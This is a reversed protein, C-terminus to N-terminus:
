EDFILLEMVNEPMNASKEWEKIREDTVTDMAGSKRVGQWYEEVTKRYCVGRTSYCNEIFEEFSSALKNPQRFSGDHSLLWISNERHLAICIYDGFANSGISFYGKKLNEEYFEHEVLLHELDFRTGDRLSDLRVIEPYKRGTNIEASFLSCGNYKVLYKKYSTPLSISLKKEFEEIETLSIPYAEKTDVFLINGKNDKVQSLLIDIYKDLEKEDEIVKKKREELLETMKKFSGNYMGKMHSILFKHRHVSISMLRNHLAFQRKGTFSSKQWFEEKKHFLIDRKAQLLEFFLEKIKEKVLEKDQGLFLAEKYQHSLFAQYSFPIPVFSSITDSYHMDGYLGKSFDEPYYDISPVIIYGDKDNYFVAISFSEVEQRKQHIIEKSDPLMKEVLDYLDTIEELTTELVVEKKSFLNFFSKTIHTITIHSNTFTLHFTDPSKKYIEEKVEKKFFLRGFYYDFNILQVFIDIIQEILLDKEYINYSFANMFIFKSHPEKDSKVLPVIHYGNKDQCVYMEFDNM